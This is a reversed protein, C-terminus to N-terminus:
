KVCAEREIHTYRMSVERTYMNFVHMDCTEWICTPIFLCKEYTYIDCTHISIKWM